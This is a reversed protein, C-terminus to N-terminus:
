PGSIVIAGISAVVASPSATGIAAAGLSDAASAAQRAKTTKLGLAPWDIAPEKKPPRRPYRAASGVGSWGHRTVSATPIKYVEITVDERYQSILPTAGKNSIDTGVNDMPPVSEFADARGRRKRDTPLIRM